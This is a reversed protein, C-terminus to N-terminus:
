HMRLCLEMYELQETVCLVVGGQREQRGMRLLRYGKMAINWGSSGDMIGVLNYGQLQMYTEIEDGKNVLAHVEPLYGLM